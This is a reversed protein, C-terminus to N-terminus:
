RNKYIWFKVVGQNLIQNGVFCLCFFWNLKWSVSWEPCPNSYLLPTKHRLDLNTWQCRPPWNISPQSFQLTLFFGVIKQCPKPCNLPYFCMMFNESCPMSKWYDFKYNLYCNVFEKLFKIVLSWRHLEIRSLCLCIKFRNM